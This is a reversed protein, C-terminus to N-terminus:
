TEFIAYSPSTGGVTIAGTWVLDLLQSFRGGTGDNAITCANLAMHYNTSSAVGTGMLVYLVNTGANQISWSSRNANIPLAATATNPTTSPSNPGLASPRVELARADAM